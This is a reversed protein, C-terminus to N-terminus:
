STLTVAARPTADPTPSSRFGTAIVLGAAALLLVGILILASEVGSLDLPARGANTHVISWAVIALYGGVTLRVANLQRRGDLRGLRAVVSAGIFLQIGHLAMAHPFKAVGAEGALVTDPAHGIQEAMQVGLGIVWQGLGLGTIVLAMGALVALRTSRDSPRKAFAWVTLALLALSFVGISAGMASFIISDTTTTFNFHSPVGRWAQATILGVEIVGSVMLTGALAGELRKRSPLRDLVWGCTWLLLGVSIGFTIPKRFSVAGGWDGGTAVLVLLHVAASMGLVAAAVGLRRSSTKELKLASVLSQM